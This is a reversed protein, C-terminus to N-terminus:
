LSNCKQEAVQRHLREWIESSNFVKASLFDGGQSVVRISGRFMLEVRETRLFLPVPMDFVPTDKLDLDTRGSFMLWSDLHWNLLRSWRLSLKDAKRGTGAGMVVTAEDWLPCSCGLKGDDSGTLRESRTSFDSICDESKIDDIPSCSLFCSICGCMRPTCAQVM